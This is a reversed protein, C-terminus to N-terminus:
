FASHRAPGPLFPFQEHGRTKRASHRKTWDEELGRPKMFARITTTMVSTCSETSTDNQHYFFQVHLARDRPRRLDQLKGNGTDARCPVPPTCFDFGPM